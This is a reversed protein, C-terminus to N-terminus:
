AEVLCHRFDTADAAAQHQRMDLSGIEGADDIQRDDACSCRVPVGRSAVPGVDSRHRKRRRLLDADEAEHLLRQVVGITVGAAFALRDVDVQVIAPERNGHGIAPWAEIWCAIRRRRHSPSAPRLSRTSLMPPCNASCVEGPPVRAM